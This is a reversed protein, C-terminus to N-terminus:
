FYSSCLYLLDLYLLRALFFTFSGFFIIFRYLFLHNPYFQCYCLYNSSFYNQLHKLRIHDNIIVIKSIQTLSIILNYLLFNLHFYFTLEFFLQFYIIFDVIKFM